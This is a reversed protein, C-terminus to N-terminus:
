IHTPMESHLEHFASLLMEDSIGVLGAPSAEGIISRHRDGKPMWEFKNSYERFWSLTPTGAMLAVHIAGSDGGIHIQALQILAALEILSLNGPFALAPEFSLSSLLEKFKTKERENPACSLIIDVEHYNKNIANLLAAIQPIPLEKYDLTTFPSIHIFPNSKRTRKGLLSKVKQVIQEPIKIVFEAKSTPFGAQRLCRCNQEYVPSQGRPVYTAHTFCFPWYWRKKNPIRGLRYKAGTSLTLFSSRDSGNINIVVDYRQARLQKVYSFNKYWAPGKPFRPYGLINDIFPVVEMVSKIHESVMVDLQANPLADRICKLAPILHISDGLFGLDLLLVKRADKIKEFFSSEPLNMTISLLMMAIRLINAIFNLNRPSTAM